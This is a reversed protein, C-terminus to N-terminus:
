GIEDLEEVECDSFASVLDFTFLCPRLSTSGFGKYAHCWVWFVRM